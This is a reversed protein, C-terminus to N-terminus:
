NLILLIAILNGISKSKILHNKLNYTVEYAYEYKNLLISKNSKETLCFNYKKVGILLLFTYFQIFGKRTWKM